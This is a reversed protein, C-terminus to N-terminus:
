NNFDPSYAAQINIGNANTAFAWYGTDTSIISPDPFDAELALRAILDRKQVIGFPDSGSPRPITRYAYACSTSLLFLLRLTHNLTM